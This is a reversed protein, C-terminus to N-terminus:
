TTDKAALAALDEATVLPAQARELGFGRDCLLDGRGLLREAGARDLVIKANTANVVRLCIKLPLNAKIIGTVVNRDPRQTALILHVGAARGKQALRGVLREFAKKESRGALVLDGFEDFLIVRFPIDSRGAAFRASLNECGERSLVRYREEMEEVAAELRPLAEELDTVVPREVHGLPPLNGFTLIKPDILTLRVRDAANRHALTAVISKLLESKGAGAAGAVLAHCTNPDALDCVIPRGEIGVGVPFAVPGAHGQVEPSEVVERWFVPLPRERPIDITVRGAGAAIVPLLPLSLAVKLDEARSALAAVKVGSGPKVEYRVLQPAERRGTVEVALGFRLYGDRIAASLDGAQPVPGAGAPSADPARPAPAGGALRVLVPSVVDEFMAELDKAAARVEELGPEYYELVGECPRGPHAIGLMRAYIALQLLDQKMREGRTLKYDVIELAGDPLARVADVKGSVWVTRRGAPVPIAQLPVESALFLGRWGGRPNRERRLASLHACFAKLASALHWASDTKGGRCIRELRRAAFREYLQGWLALPDSEAEAEGREALWDTYREVLNHFLRGYRPIEGPPTFHRTPPNEGAALRERFAPDLCARCLASVGIAEM